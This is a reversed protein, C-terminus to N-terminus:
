IGIMALANGLGCIVGYEFRRGWELLLKEQIGQDPNLWKKKSLTQAYFAIQLIIINIQTSYAGVVKLSLGM